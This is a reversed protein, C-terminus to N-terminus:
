LHKKSVFERSRATRGTTARTAANTPLLIRAPLSKVFARLKQHGRNTITPKKNKPSSKELARYGLPLAFTQLVKM